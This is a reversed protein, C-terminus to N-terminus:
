ERKPNVTSHVIKVIPKIRESDDIDSSVDFPIVWLKIDDSFDFSHAITESFKDTKPYILILQRNNGTLYKHAYAFMQYFDNQSLGYKDSGNDDRADLLKWKTDLVLSNTDDEKILFDPKLNFWNKDGHKVLHESRAQEKLSLNDPLQRRLVSGVYSEFIDHMPFLLSIANASGQMALPTMGELILKAWALPTQYYSMGRNLKVQAFDQKINHSVPIDNFAFSLERCLRQHANNKSYNAIKNLATHILRNAPRDLIYEDYEVYFKHKNVLNYKLQQSTLLKGKLFLLNDQKSVYDSRLGRKVLQNVSQLFQRIFVEFLPMKHQNVQADASEIHRFGNMTKLMNLLSKRSNDITLKDATAENSVKGVKPLVEIQEGNPIQIVGVYHKLQLAREGSYSRLRLFHKMESAQNLCLSELYKFADPSVKACRNDSVVSSLFGYEFVTIVNSNM